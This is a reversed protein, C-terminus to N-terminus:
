AVRKPATGTLRRLVTDLEDRDFRQTKVLAEIKAEARRVARSVRSQPIGLLGAVEEQTSGELRYLQYCRAELVSPIEVDPALSGGRMAPTWAELAFM